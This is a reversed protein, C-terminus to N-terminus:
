VLGWEVDLSVFKEILNTTQSSLESTSCTLTDLGFSFSLLYFSSPHWVVHSSVYIHSSLHRYTKSDVEALIENLIGSFPLPVGWEPSHIECFNAPSWFLVLKSKSLHYVQNDHDIRYHYKLLYPKFKLFKWEPISTRVRQCRFLLVDVYRLTTQPLLLFCNGFGESTLSECWSIDIM